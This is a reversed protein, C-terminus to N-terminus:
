RAARRVTFAGDASAPPAKTWVGDVPQHPLRPSRCAPDGGGQGGPTPPGVLSCWSRRLQWLVEAAAAADLPVGDFFFGVEGPPKYSAFFSRARGVAGALDEAGSGGRLVHHGALWVSWPRRQQVLRPASLDAASDIDAAPVARLGM